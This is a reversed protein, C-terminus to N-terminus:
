GNLSVESTVSLLTFSSPTDQEIRWLPTISGARWGFALVKKDGSFPVVPQDFAATGFRKFPVEQLGHGADICLSSTDRIRFTFAVPRIRGGQTGGSPSSITHPLPEVIHAFGLGIEIDSAPESLTVAGATVTHDVIPAGDAVIKVTQGELHGLGSWDTKPTVSTGKLGSDVHYTDDFVEIMFAGNREVLIYVDDGVVTVSKFNGATSQQSWASVKEYRFLTLSSLNGDNM